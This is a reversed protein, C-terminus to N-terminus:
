AKWDSNKTLIFSLDNQFKSNCECKECGNEDVVFGNECYMRCQRKPCEDKMMPATELFDFLLINLGM